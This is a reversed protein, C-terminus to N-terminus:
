ENQDFCQFGVKGAPSCNREPPKVTPADHKPKNGPISILRLGSNTRQDPRRDQAIRLTEAPRKSGANQKL